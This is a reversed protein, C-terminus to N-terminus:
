SNDFAVSFLKFCRMGALAVFGIVHLVLLLLVDFESLLYDNNPESAEEQWQGEWDELHGESHEPKQRLRLWRRIRQRFLLRGGEQEKGAPARPM